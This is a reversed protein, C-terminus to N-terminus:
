FLLYFTSRQLKQQSKKCRWWRRLVFSSFWIKKFQTKKRFIIVGTLMKKHWKRVFSSIHCHCNSIYVRYARTTPIDSDLHMLNIIDLNFDDRKEHLRTLINGNTHSSFTGMIKEQIVIFCPIYSCVSTLANLRVNLYISWTRKISIIGGHSDPHNAVIQRVADLEHYLVLCTVNGGMRLAFYM